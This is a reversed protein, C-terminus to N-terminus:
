ELKRISMCCLTVLLHGESAAMTVKETYDGLCPADAEHHICLDYDQDPYPACTRGEEGCLDATTILCERVFVHATLSPIVGELGQHPAWLTCEPATAAPGFYFFSPGTYTAPAVGVCKGPCGVPADAPNDPLPIDGPATSESGHFEMACGLPSLVASCVLLRALRRASM